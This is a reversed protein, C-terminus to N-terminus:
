SIAYPTHIGDKVFTEIDMTIFKNQLADTRTLGQIFKSSKESKFLIQENNRAALLFINM